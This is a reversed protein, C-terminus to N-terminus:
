PLTSRKKKEITLDVNKFKAMQAELETVRNNIQILENKMENLKKDREEIEDQLNKVKKEKGETDQELVKVKKRLQASEEEKSRLTLLWIRAEEKKESLPFERIVREFYGISKGYDMNPNGPDAYLLGMLFLAQDGHAEPYEKLVRLTEQTSAEYEGNGMKSKAEKLAQGGQWQLAPPICGVLGWIM